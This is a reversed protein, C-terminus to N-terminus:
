YTPPLRSFYGWIQIGSWTHIWDNCPYWDYFHQHPYQSTALHESLFRPLETCSSRCPLEVAFLIIGSVRTVPPTRHLCELRQLARQTAHLPVEREQAILLTIMCSTMLLIHVERPQGASNYYYQSCVNVHPLPRLHPHRWNFWDDIIM